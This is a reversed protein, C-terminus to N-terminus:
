VGHERWTTPVFESEWTSEDIDFSAVPTEFDRPLAMGNSGLPGLEPLEYHSGFVEQVYGRAPGDPLSVKFRMGKQVVVLEGPRVMLSRSSLDTLKSCRVGIVGGKFSPSM